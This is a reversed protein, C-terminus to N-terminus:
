GEPPENSRARLGGTGGRTVVRNSGIACYWWRFLFVNRRTACIGFPEKNRSGM